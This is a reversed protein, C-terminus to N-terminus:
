VEDAAIPKEDFCKAMEDPDMSCLKQSDIETKGEIIHSSQSEM